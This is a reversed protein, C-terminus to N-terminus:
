DRVRWVTIFFPSDESEVGIYNIQIHKKRPLSAAIADGTTSLVTVIVVLKNPDHDHELALDYVGASTRSATEFGFNSKFEIGPAPSSFANVQAAAVLEPKDSM